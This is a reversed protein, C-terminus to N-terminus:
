AYMRCSLYIAFANQDSYRLAQDALEIFHSSDGIHNSFNDTVNGRHQKKFPMSQHRFYNFFCM